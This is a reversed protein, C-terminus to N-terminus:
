EDCITTLVSEYIRDSYSNVTLKTTEYPYQYDFQSTSIQISSHQIDFTRTCSQQNIYDHKWICFDNYYDYGTLVCQSRPTSLICRVIEVDNAMIGPVYMTLCLGTSVDVLNFSNNVGGDYNYVLFIDGTYERVISTKSSMTTNMAVINTQATANKVPM